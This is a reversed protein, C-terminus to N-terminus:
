AHGHGQVERLTPTWADATGAILGLAALEQWAEDASVFRTGPGTHSISYRHALTISRPGLPALTRRHSALAQTLLVAAATTLEDVHVPASTLEVTM